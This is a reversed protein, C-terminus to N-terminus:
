VVVPKLFGRDTYFDGIDKGTVGQTKGTMGRACGQVGQLGGDAVTCMGHTGSYARTLGQVGRDDGTLWQIEM